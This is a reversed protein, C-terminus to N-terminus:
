APARAFIRGQGVITLCLTAFAGNEAEAAPVPETMEDYGSPYFRLLDGVTYIDKEAFLAAAKPGVGKLRSVPADLRM